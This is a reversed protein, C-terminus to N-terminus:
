ERAMREEAPTAGADPLLDALPGAQERAFARYAAVQRTREAASWGLEAAMVDAVDEAVVLGRSRDEIAIHTRRALADELMLALEARCAHVVEARLYPLDPILRAGLAADSAILDLLSLAEAGHAGALHEIVEAELGLARGREYLPERAEPWGVAGHLRLARTPQTPTTQKRGERADIRDGVDEAMRRYATLKGGSVTLLGDAGEVVTYTRSLQGSVRTHRADGMRLLPRYGAYTAVIDARSVPRRLYRNLHALLYTVDDANAVPDDIRRVETDTTGVLARSLWPVLFIIRGDETEPLVLAEDGLGLTERAFILHAGKSPAIHLSADDGTLREIEEAWVGTANVVHRARVVTRGTPRAGNAGEGADPLTDRLYAGSIRGGDGAERAFGTVECYNALLAGRAAASRLVALTLRSDDTQGDYYVFGTKIGEPTLGCAREIAEARPLWRHPAINNRGALTDYLTLGIDLLSGLGIGFPPAVPIGVPHRATAYLPLVFALPHVLHPANRLLRGRERLGERVLAIDLQPLYRIGGHVLKTSRSSTGCAVDGREVLGVRYGRAVADLAVGAGTIGGGIVLIDLPTEAMDALHAARTAASLKGTGEGHKMREM